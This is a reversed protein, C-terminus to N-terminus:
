GKGGYRDQRRCQLRPRGCAPRLGGQRETPLPLAPRRQDAAFGGPRRAQGSRGTDPPLLDARDTQRREDIGRRGRRGSAADRRHRPRLRGHDHHRRVMEESHDANRDRAARDEDQRLIRLAQLYEQQVAGGFKLAIRAAGINSSHTFVEPVTLMRHTAHFDHITFRGIHLASTADIRDNLTIAGTDLGTALTFSKFVSGLEFVGATVRNLRDPKNADVPNNPDFDPLSVMALVEGTHVSLVVGMAAIAKYREMAQALEDHLIHQVDIDISLKVPDLEEGRAFGAAHLDALWRDDVYKEIGAIGQNDVNVLGLIHSATSGGPYFRKNESLFGIGPIGLSHIQAKQKPTIERKIWVFGAKGTLRKRLADANLDPLVGTILETAEDPDLINRPEGYVSATKIDAALVEGNRDILDPRGTAIADNPDVGSKGAGPEMLGFSVLRGIIVLFALSFVIMALRIRPRM